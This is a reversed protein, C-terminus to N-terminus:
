FQLQLGLYDLKETDTGSLWGFEGFIALREGVFRRDVLFLCTSEATRTSEAM